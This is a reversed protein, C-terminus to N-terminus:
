ADPTPTPEPEPSTETNTTDTTTDDPTPATSDQMSDPTTEAPVQQNDMAQNVPTQQTPTTTDQAPPVEQAIAITSGAIAILGAIIKTRM